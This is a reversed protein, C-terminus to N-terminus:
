YTYLLATSLSVSEFKFQALHLIKKIKEDKFALSSIQLHQYFARIKQLDNFVRNAIYM